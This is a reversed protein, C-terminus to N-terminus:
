YERAVIRALASDSETKVPLAIIEFEKMKLVISLNTLNEAILINHSLLIKHVHFPKKDPSMLDIGIMKIKRKILEEALSEDIVPNNLLYRETGFYREFGTYFLIIEKNNILASYEDRWKIISEGAVDLICGPGIFMDIPFSSLYVNGSTLHMPGDIHTGIHMGTCIKYDTFGDSSYDGTKKLVPQQDGPYIQLNNKIEHSLDNLM